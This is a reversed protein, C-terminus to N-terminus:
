KEKLAGNKDCVKSSVQRGDAFTLILKAEIDFLTGSFPRGDKITCNGILVGKDNWSSREGIMVGHDWELRDKKIGNEHYNIMEGHAQNNIWNTICSLEGNIFWQSEIGEKMNMKWTLEYKKKGNDWWFTEIGNQKDESWHMQVRPKGNAYFITELGHRLRKTLDPKSSDPNKEEITKLETEAKITGNTFYTSEKKLEGKQWFLVNTKVGKDTFHTEVGDLLGESFYREIVMQGSILFSRAVGHFIEKGDKKYTNTLLKIKTKEEDWYIISETTEKLNEKVDKKPQEKTPETNTEKGPEKPTEQAILTTCFVLLLM